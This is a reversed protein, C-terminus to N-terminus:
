SKEEEVRSVLGPFYQLMMHAGPWKDKDSVDLAREFKGGTPRATQKQIRRPEIASTMKIQQAPADAGVFQTDLKVGDGFIHAFLPQWVIREQELVDKFFMMRQPFYVVVVDNTRSQLEGQRVLTSLLPKGLNVVAKVFQDWDTPASSSIEVPSVNAVIPKSFKDRPPLNSDASTQVLRDSEPVVSVPACEQGRLQAWAELLILLLFEHKATTKLFAAERQCLLNFFKLCQNVTLSDLVHALVQQDSCCGPPVLGYKFWLAQYVLQVFQRWCEVPSLNELQLQKVCVLVEQISSGCAVCVVLRALEQDSLRGVAKRVEDATVSQASLRVRELINLADRVCGQSEQAILALAENECSILETKCVRVLHNILVDYDISRFFLQFCRSRVTEVIKHEDTTALMFIVQAPPEELIKLFANFAAKSLMHAEDILYIRNRGLLPVLSAAEIIQRVNDVGTHSAADIEIFDPHRGNAMAVCSDCTHCPLVLQPNKQFDQLTQCNVAAAFVRAMTTKGCGRQGALLYVPFFRGVFLSNKLIRVSLDQGIIENFSRPRWKRALNLQGAEM